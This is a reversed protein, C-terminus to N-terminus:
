RGLVVDIGRLIAQVKSPPVRGAHDRLLARDVTQLQSVNAVSDHELVVVPREFGPEAGRPEAFDYWFVDRQAAKAVV